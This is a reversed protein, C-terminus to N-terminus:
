KFGAAVHEREGNRTLWDTTESNPEKRVGSAVPNNVLIKGDVLSDSLEPWNPVSRRERPYEDTFRRRLILRFHEIPYVPAIRKGEEFLAVM